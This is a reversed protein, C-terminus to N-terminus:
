AQEPDGTRTHKVPKDNATQSATQSTRTWINLDGPIANYFDKVAGCRRCVGRSQPGDPSEILWHHACPATEKRTRERHITENVMIKVEM